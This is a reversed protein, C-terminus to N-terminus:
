GIHTVPLGACRLRRARAHRCRDGWCGAVREFSNEEDEDETRGARVARTERSQVGIATGGSRHDDYKCSRYKNPISWPAESGQQIVGSVAIARLACCDINAGVSDGPPHGMSMPSCFSM